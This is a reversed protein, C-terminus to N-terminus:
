ESGPTAARGRIVLMIQGVILPIISAGAVLMWGPSGPASVALVDALGPVYVAVLLLGTCLAVSGLVYKNTVVDNSLVGSEPSRMNFVNFLQAFGITLFAITVSEREPLELILRAVGFAGLTAITILSGWIAVDFWQRREMVAEDPPRPSRSM